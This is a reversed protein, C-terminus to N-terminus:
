SSATAASFIAGFASISALVAAPHNSFWRRICQPPGKSLLLYRPCNQGPGGCLYFIGSGNLEFTFISWGNKPHVSLDTLSQCLFLQIKAGRSLFFSSTILSGGGGGRGRGKLGGRGMDAM